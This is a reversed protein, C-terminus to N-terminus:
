RRDALEPVLDDIPDDLGIVGAEVLGLTAAATVPKTLSAIRFIADRALPTDDDFSPTGVADVHVEDGAAVLTVMGPLEGAEVHAAMAEHLRSLGDGSLRITTTPRSPTRAMDTRRRDTRSIM